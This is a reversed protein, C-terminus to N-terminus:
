AKSAVSCRRTSSNRTPSRCSHRSRVEELWRPWAKDQRLILHNISDLPVFRAHAIRGAIFRGDSFPVRRDGTSHLVLTPCTVSELKDTIDIQDFVRIM